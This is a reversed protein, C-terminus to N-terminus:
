ILGQRKLDEYTKKDYVNGEADEFEETREAQNQEQRGERKLREALALADAIKTIEHFHKTNPLGLARMGFAHRSEQFHRDFAKRGMYVYDSCIECKYEVGLGHLKYLWYPIPKGDWGLPLKLPNYIRGDDEEPEVEETVVQTEEMAEEVEQERERATLASKREINQKTDNILAPVPPLLLLTETLRTLLAAAHAKSTSAHPQVPATPPRAPQAAAAEESASLKEAAKIHKKSTLHADYVTKKAYQKQCAACWIGEESPAADGNTHTQSTAASAKKQWGEVKGEKWEKEFGEEVPKLAADVTGIELPHTRRLFDQLYTNLTQVYDLYAASEKEKQDLAEGVLGKSLMNLYQMYTLRRASKLNVFQTHPIYLDLYRGVSEEGTFLTDLPDIVEEEGDELTVRELGDSAVLEELSRLFGRLEPEQGAAGSAQRDAHVRNIRNFRSYFESLDDQPNGKGTSAPVSLAEIEAARFGEKDEYQSRLLRQREDLRNLVDLAKQHNRLEGRRGTTHKNLIDALAQEYREVEEHEQRQLEIISDM